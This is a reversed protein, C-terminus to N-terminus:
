SSASVFSAAAQASLLITSMLRIHIRTINSGYLAWSCLLVDRNALMGGCTYRLCGPPLFTREVHLGKQNVSYPGHEVTFGAMRDIQVPATQAEISNLPGIVAYGRPGHIIDTVTTGLTGKQTADSPFCFRPQPAQSRKHGSLLLHQQVSDGLPHAPVKTILKARMPMADERKQFTSGHVYNSHSPDFSNEQMVDASTAVQQSIGYPRRLLPHPDGSVAKCRTQM